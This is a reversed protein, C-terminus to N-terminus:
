PNSVTIPTITVSTTPSTQITILYSDAPDALDQPLPGIAAMAGAAVNFTYDPAAPGYKTNGPVVVTITTSVGSGNRVILTSGPTVKDTASAANQTLTTGLVSAPQSVLTAM